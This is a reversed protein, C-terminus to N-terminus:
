HSKALLSCCELTVRNRGNQKSLYLCHDAKELIGDIKQGQQPLCTYVGASLTCVKAVVSMAHPINLKEVGARIMEAIVQAGDAPTNPLIMAFEEGGYRAVVDGGRRVSATLVGGIAKLCEDGAVHGYCDNYSKFLDVDALIVTLPESQRYGRAIESVLVKDMFRRNSLGTLGDINVLQRLEVNAVELEDTIDLLKHRMAAIRQMAIMKAELVLPNVPKTLYDDGGAQIGAVIDEPSICGSLFIVPVWDRNDQRLLRTAAHGDMQPMVVDMLIIDPEVRAYVDVAKQGNEVVVVEHGMKQLQGSIVASEYKSDDVLLIKMLLWMGILTCCYLTIQAADERTWKFFRV